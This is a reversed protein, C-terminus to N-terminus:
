NFFFLRNPTKLHGGVPPSYNAPNVNVSGAKLLKAFFFIGKIQNLKRGHNEVVMPFIMNQHIQIWDRKLLQKM